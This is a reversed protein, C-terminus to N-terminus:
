FYIQMCGESRLALSLNPSITPTAITFHELVLSDGDVKTGYTQLLFSGAALMFSTYLM